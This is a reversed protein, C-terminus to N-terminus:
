RHYLTVLLMEAESAIEFGEFLSFIMNKHSLIYYAEFLQYSGKDNMRIKNVKLWEYNWDFKDNM